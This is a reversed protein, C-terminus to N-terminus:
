TSAKLQLVHEIIDFQFNTGHRRSETGDQGDIFVIQETYAVATGSKGNSPGHPTLTLSSLTVSHFRGSHYLDYASILRENPEILHYRAAFLTELGSKNFTGELIEEGGPRFDISRRKLTWSDAPGTFWQAKLEPDAWAAFVREPSAAWTRNLTFVGHFFATTM